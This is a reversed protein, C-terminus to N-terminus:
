RLDSHTGRGLQHDEVEDRRHCVWEAASTPVIWRLPRRHLLQDLPLWRDQVPHRLFVPVWALSQWRDKATESSEGGRTVCFHQRDGLPGDVYNCFSWSAAAGM